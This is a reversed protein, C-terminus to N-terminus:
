FVIILSMSCHEQPLGFWVVVCMRWDAGGVILIVESVSYPIIRGQLCLFEIPAQFIM